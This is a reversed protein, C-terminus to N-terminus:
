GCAGRSCTALGNCCDADTTCGTGNPSVCCTGADIDCGGGCCPVGAACAERNPICTGCVGDQCSTDSTTCRPYRKSCSCVKQGPDGVCKGTKCQRGKTCLSGGIRKAADAEQGGLALAGVAALGALGRLTQRRSRTQGFGRVLGDFREPDMSNGEEDYDDDPPV